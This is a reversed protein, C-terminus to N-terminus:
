EEPADGLYYAAVQRTNDDLEIGQGTLYRVNARAIMGVARDLDNYAMQCVANRNISAPRFPEFYDAVYIIKELETMGPHGVTHWRIANLVEPDDVGYRERALMAGYPAHGLADSYPKGCDHLLGAKRAKELPVTRYTDALSMAMHMVGLSHRLRTPSLEEELMRFWRREERTVDCRDLIKENSLFKLPIYLHHDKIYRFVGDPLDEERLTGAWYAERIATSSSSSDVDPLLRITANYFSELSQMLEKLERPDVQGKREAVLLTANRCVAEPRQWNPLSLFSDAGLIFYWEVEPYAQRLEELTKATTTEGKQRVEWDSYRFKEEGAIALRVMNERHRKESLPHQATKLYSYYCPMFWVEDLGELELASRGLQLHTDHIPDFAGGMIGIKRKMM